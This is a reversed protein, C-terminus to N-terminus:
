AVVNNVNSINTGTSDVTIQGTANGRCVNGQITVHDGTFVRIGYGQLTGGSARSTNGIITVDSPTTGDLLIGANSGAGQNNDRVTNGMVTVDSAAGTVRIGTLTNLEVINGVVACKQSGNVELGHDTNSKVINGTIAVDSCTTVVKIGSFTNGACLNNAIIHRLATNQVIIGHETNNECTNGTITADTTSDAFNIGPGGLAGGNVKYLGNGSCANGTVSVRSSFTSRVGTDGNATCVNGTVVIDSSIGGGDGYVNIAHKGCGTVLNQAVAGGACRFIDIGDGVDASLAGISSVRNGAVRVNTCTGLSIGANSFGSIKCNRVTVGDVNNANVALSTIPNLAYTRPDTLTLDRIVCRAAATIMVTTTTSTFVLEGPGFIETDASMTLANTKFRGSPVYVKAKKPTIAGAATLAAQIATTCDTANDGVAGFGDIHFWGTLANAATAPLPAYVVSPRTQVLVREAGGFDLWMEVVGSPGSFLPLSGDALTTVTTTASGVANLLDTYQTGGTAASWVTCTIGAGAFLTGGITRLVTDATTAGFAFRAM